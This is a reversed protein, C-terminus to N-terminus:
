MNKTNTINHKKFRAELFRNIRKDNLWDVYNKTVDKVYDKFKLRKSNFM